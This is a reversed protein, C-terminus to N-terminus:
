SSVVKFPKSQFAPVAPTHWPRAHSAIAFVDLVTVHPGSSDYDSDTDAKMSGDLTGLRFHVTTLIGFDSFDHKM